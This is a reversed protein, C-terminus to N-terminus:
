GASVARNKAAVEKFRYYIGVKEGFVENCSRAILEGFHNDLADAVLQSGVFLDLMKNKFSLPYINKFWTDFEDPTIQASIIDLFLKWHRQLSLREESDPAMGASPTVQKKGKTGSEFRERRNLWACFLAKVSKVKVGPSTEWGRAAYHNSFLMLDQETAKLAMIDPHNLLERLTEESPIVFEEKKEEDQPAKSACEHASNAGEMSATKKNYKRKTVKEKRGETTEESNVVPSSPNNGSLGTNHPILESSIDSPEENKESINSEDSFGDEAANEAYLTKSDIHTKESNIPSSLQKKPILEAGDSTKESSVASTEQKKRTIRKKTYTKEPTDVAAGPSAIEVGNTSSIINSDAHTEESSVGKSDLKKQILTDEESIIESSVGALDANIGYNDKEITIKKSKQGSVASKATAKNSSFNVAEKNLEPSVKYHSASEESSVRGTEPNIVYLDMIAARKARVCVEKFQSQFLLSTLVKDSEFVNKDFFEWNLLQAVIENLTKESIDGLDRCMKMRLFENWEIYYGNKYIMCMLSLVASVGGTGYRQAVAIIAPEELFDVSMPFYELGQKKPRAM